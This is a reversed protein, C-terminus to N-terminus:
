ALYYRYNKRIFFSLVLDCYAAKPASSWSLLLIVEVESLDLFAADFVSSEKLTVHLM